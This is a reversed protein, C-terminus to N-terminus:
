RVGLRREAEEIATKTYVGNRLQKSIELANDSYERYDGESIGRLLNPLEYLSEVLVGCHHNKVFEAKEAYKWIIVPLGAALYLSLKHPNNFRLYEGTKGSCTDISDGDWVLGFGRMLKGPLEDPPVSGHYIINDGSILKEEYYPGYLHYEVRPVEKLKALFPSKDQMMSGAYVVKGPEYEEHNEKWEKCLYDFLGLTILSEAPIRQRLFYDRMVENHVIFIDATELMFSFEHEMYPTMCYDRVKEADHVVAIFRVGKEEKLARLVREREPDPARYPHQLVLVAGRRVAQYVRKWDEASRRFSWDKEGGPAGSTTHVSALDYGMTSLIDRIDILAKSGAIHQFSSEEWILVRNRNEPVEKEQVSANEARRIIEEVSPPGIAEIVSPAVAISLRQLEKKAAIQELMEDVYISTLVLVTDNRCAAAFEDLPLVPYDKEEVCIFPTRAFNDVVGLIKVDPFADLFKRFHKGGGFCYVAKQDLVMQIDNKTLNVSTIMGTGLM